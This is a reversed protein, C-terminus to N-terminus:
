NQGFPGWWWWGYFDDVQWASNVAGAINPGPGPLIWSNANIPGQPADPCIWGQNAIGWTKAFWGASSSMYGDQYDPLNLGNQYGNWGLQGADDAVAATYGINIQHLNSRCQTSRGAEKAKSLAPLLMAALIAIVAIVVLLEILTFGTAPALQRNRRLPPHGFCCLNATPPNGHPAGDRQRRQKAPIM